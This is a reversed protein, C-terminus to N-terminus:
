DKLTAPLFDNKLDINFVNNTNDNVQSKKMIIIIIIIVNKVIWQTDIYTYINETNSVIRRKLLFRLM